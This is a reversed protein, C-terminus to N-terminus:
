EVLIRPGQKVHFIMNQKFNVKFIFIRCNWSYTAGLYPVLSGFGSKTVSVNPYLDMGFLDFLVQLTTRYHTCKSEHSCSLKKRKNSMVHKTRTRVM